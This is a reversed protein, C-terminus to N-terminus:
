GSPCSFFADPMPVEAFVFGDLAPEGYRLHFPVQVELDAGSHTVNLMLSSGESDMAVVPLELNSNGHHHFTFLDRYNALEYPDVFALVPLKYYLYLHCDAYKDWNSSSIKTLFNRHFGYDPHITSSITTSAM